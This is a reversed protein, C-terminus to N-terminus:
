QNQQYVGSFYIFAKRLHLATSQDQRTKDKERKLLSMHIICIIYYIIIIYNPFCASSKESTKQATSTQNARGESPM